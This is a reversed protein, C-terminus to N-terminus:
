ESLEIKKLVLEIAQDIAEGLPIERCGAVAVRCKNNPILIKQAKSRGIASAMAPTIEGLLSNAVIIGITGVILDADECAVLIPNEGTASHDAGAKRMTATAISNTGIATIELAPLRMKMKEVITKGISGGQGDIIVIKM